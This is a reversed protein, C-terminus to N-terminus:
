FHKAFCSNDPDNRDGDRNSRLPFCYVQHCQACMTRARKPCLACAKPKIYNKNYTSAGKSNTTALTMVTHPNGQKDWYVKVVKQDEDNNNESTPRNSTSSSATSTKIKYRRGKPTLPSTISSVNTEQSEEPWFMINKNLLEDGTVDVENEDDDEEDEMEDLMRM